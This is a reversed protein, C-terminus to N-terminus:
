KWIKMVFVLRKTVNLSVAMIQESFLFVGCFFQASSVDHYIAIFCAMAVTVAATYAQLTLDIVGSM